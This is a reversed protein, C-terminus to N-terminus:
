LFSSVVFAIFIISMIAIGVYTEHKKFWIKAKELASQTVPTELADVHSAEGAATALTEDCQDVAIITTVESAEIESIGLEMKKM